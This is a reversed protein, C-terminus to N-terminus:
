ATSASGARTARLRPLLGFCWGGYCVLAIALSWGNPWAAGLAPWDNPSDVHAFEVLPPVGAWVRGPLLVWPHVLALTLGALAGPVTIGDPITKEDADILSATLMLLLLLAHAAFQWLQSAHFDPCVFAGAPPAGNFLLGLLGHREVEWYYLLPLLVALALEVGLPRLWFGRGHLPTERRLRLWGLIPLRDAFSRTSGPPATWWPSILRQRWALRYVGLNVLGAAVLGLAALLALQVELPIAFWANM